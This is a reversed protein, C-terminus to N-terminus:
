LYRWGKLKPHWFDKPYFVKTSKPALLAAVYSLSSRSLLIYDSNSIDMITSLPDGGIKVQLTGVASSLAQSPDFESIHLNKNSFGPTGVWLHQQDEPPSFTLPKKPADTYLTVNFNRYDEKIIKKLRRSYWDIPIQRPVKMGPYVVFGGVGQRYHVAISKTTTNQQSQLRHMLTKLAKKYYSPLLDVLLYPNLVRILTPFENRSQRYIGWLNSLKLENIEISQSFELPLDEQFDFQEELRKIFGAMSLPDQFPDLPHVAVKEIPSHMYRLGLILSFAKVAILRQIQAGTGDDARPADFTITLRNRKHEPLCRIRFAILLVALDRPLWRIKRFIQASRPFRSILRRVLSKPRLSSNNYELVKFSEKSPKTM